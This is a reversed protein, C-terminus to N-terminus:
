IKTETSGTVGKDILLYKWLIKQDSKTNILQRKFKLKQKAGAM